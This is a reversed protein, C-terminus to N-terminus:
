KRIGRCIWPDVYLTKTRFGYGDLIKEVRRYGLELVHTDLTGQWKQGDPQLPAELHVTRLHSLSALKGFLLHVQIPSLHEILHTAVFLDYKDSVVTDWFWATLKVAHYGLNGCVQRIEVLDYNDWAAVNGHAFAKAALSGDWGGLELIRHDFGRDLTEYFAQAHFHTQEPWDKVVDRYFSVTETFSLPYRNKYDEFRPLWARELSM